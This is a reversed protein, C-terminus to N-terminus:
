GGGTAAKQLPRLRRLVILDDQLRRAESYGLREALRLSAANDERVVAVLPAMVIRDFWDHAAAVAERGLGQGAAEPVLMWGAEAHRDLGDGLARTGYFFGVQGILARTRADSVAWQGFGTMQWHGANALFATWAEGRTRPPLGIRGLVRADAWLDAYADFDETRFPRLTLRATNIVPISRM